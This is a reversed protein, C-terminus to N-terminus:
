EQLAEEELQQCEPQYLERSRRRLSALAERTGDLLALERESEFREELRGLMRIIVEIRALIDSNSTDTGGDM